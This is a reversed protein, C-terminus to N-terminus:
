GDASFAGAPHPPNTPRAASSPWRLLMVGWCPGRRGRARCLHKLLLPRILPWLHESFHDPHSRPADAGHQQRGTCASNLAAAETGPAYGVMEVWDQSSGWNAIVDSGGALGNIFLFLNVGSGAALTDNGSGAAMINVGTGGQVCDQGSGAFVIASGTSGAALVTEPGPGMIAYGVGTNDLDMFDGPGEGFLVSPGGTAVLLNDGESGGVLLGGGPGAQATERGAGGAVVGYGSGGQYDITSGPGDGYVTLGASAGSITANSAVITDATAAGSYLLDGGVAFLLNGGAGAAGSAQVTMTAQSAVLTDAGVLAVEAVVAGMFLKDDAGLTIRGGVQTSITDAGGAFDLNAIGSLTDAGGAFSIVRGDESPSDKWATYSATFVAQNQGSGGVIQDSDGNVIFTTNGPGGIATDIATFYAIGINNTMGDVSSFTGPQLDIIAPAWFGSVDLTNGSGEDWLTVVPSTNITFDFFPEIPGAINCNFGFVQGGSLPSSTAVGYLRQAALIDLPMWTTPERDYGDASIGWNTGSLPYSGYYAASRDWPDIYSMLSWQRSDYPGFQETAPYVSGNYPGAHGLGLLHGEEHIVTDVGYGGAQTFSSLDAWYYPTTDFTTEAAQTTGIFPQGVGVPGIESAATSTGGSYPDMHFYIQATGEDQTPAFQINAVASWLALGATIISEQAATWSATPDFWYYVTAGSTGPTVSGWKHPVEGSYSWYNNAVGDGNSDAGSIFALETQVAYPLSSQDDASALASRFM